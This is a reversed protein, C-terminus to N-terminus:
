IGPKLSLSWIEMQNELGNGHYAAPVTWNTEPEQNLRM